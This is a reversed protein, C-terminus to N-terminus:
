CLIIYYYRSMINRLLESRNVICGAIKVNSYGGRSKYIICVDHYDVIRSFFFVVYLKQNTRSREMIINIKYM